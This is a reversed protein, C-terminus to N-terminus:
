AGDYFHRLREAEGDIQTRIARSVPRFMEILVKSEKKGREIKWAGAVFGDVLVTARVRGASLLVLKRYEEPVIRSRDAHSLVLNDYEPVLRVPAAEEGTVIKGQQLDFLTRGTEDRYEVLEERMGLMVKGIAAYGAWAQLDKVSAPGFAALYRRVFEEPAKATVELMRYKASTGGKWMGAPPVQVLPLHTRAGYEMAEKNWGPFHGLLGDSLESMSLPGSAILDRAAATLARTDIGSKRAGFFGQWARELAPQLLPRIWAFDAATVLHLTSRLFPARVVAGQQMAAVLEAVAFGEVRTWLGLYPPTALQAQLAVLRQVAEAASWTKRALLMQRDLLTRNLDRLTLPSSTRSM